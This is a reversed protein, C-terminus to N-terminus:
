SSDWYMPDLTCLPDSLCNGPLDRRHSDLPMGSFCSVQPIGEPPGGLVHLSQQGEPLLALSSVCLTSFAAPGASNWENLLLQASVM